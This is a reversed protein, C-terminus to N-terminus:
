TIFASGVGSFEVSINALLQVVLNNKIYSTKDILQLCLLREEIHFILIGRRTSPVGDRMTVVDVALSEYMETLLTLRM